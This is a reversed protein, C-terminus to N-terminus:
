GTNPQIAQNSQPNESYRKCECERWGGHMVDGLEIERLWRSLSESSIGDM